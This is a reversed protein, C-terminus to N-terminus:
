NAGKLAVDLRRLTKLALKLGATVAIVESEAVHQPMEEIRKVFEGIRELDHSLSILTVGGGIIMPEGEAAFSELLSDYSRKVVDVLIGIVQSHQIFMRDVLQRQNVERAANANAQELDRKLNYYRLQNKENLRVSRAACREHKKLQAKVDALERQLRSVTRSNNAREKKMQKRIKQLAAQRADALAAGRKARKDRKDLRRQLDALQKIKVDITENRSGIEAKLQQVLKVLKSECQDIM